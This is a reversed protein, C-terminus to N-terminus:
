LQAMPRGLERRASDRAADVITLVRAPNPIRSLVFNQQVGATQCQVDGFNLMTPLLGERIIRMDEVDILDASSMQHHLWHRKSSDVVRQNTVVWIDNQYRYWLFYMRVAWFALWVVSVATTALTMIGGGDSLWTVLGWLLAIPIAAVLLFFAVRPWIFIWHRRAFVLVSEGTQLDFPLKGPISVGQQQRSDNAM